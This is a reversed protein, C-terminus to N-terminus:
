SPSTEILRAIAVSASLVKQLAKESIGVYDLTLVSEELTLKRLNAQEVEAIQSIFEQNDLLQDAFEPPRSYEIIYTDGSRRTAVFSLRTQAKRRMHLVRHTPQQLSVCVVSMYAGGEALSQLPVSVKYGEFEGTPGGFHELGVTNAVKDWLENEHNRELGFWVVLIVGIFILGVPIECSNM